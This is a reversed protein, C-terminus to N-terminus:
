QFPKIKQADSRTCAVFDQSFRSDATYKPNISVHGGLLLKPPSLTRIFSLDCDNPLTSEFPDGRPNKVQIARLGHFFGSESFYVNTFSLL